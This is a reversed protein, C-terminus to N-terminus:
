QAAVADASELVLRLAHLPRGGRLHRALERRASDDQPFYTVVILIDHARARIRLRREGRLEWRAVVTRDVGILAALEAQTIGLRRRLEHVLAGTM